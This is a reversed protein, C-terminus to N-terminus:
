EGGHVPEKRLNEFLFSGSKGGVAFDIDGDRDIDALAVQMGGGARTSYDVIHRTWEVKPGVRAYEYWYVGLPERGGPDRGNHAMYRKGVVLDAQGDGNLDALAPAHAQSWSEDIMHTTWRGDAGQSLWFVGYDHGYSSLIDNRGDGNVDVVYMYSLHKEFKFDAHWQWDRSRPDVPAEFWGQATLIDNRGDGNVDGAGMGFLISQTHVVHKLFAGEKVEYWALPADAKGFQPLVEFANGDNDLDVLIAAEIPAINEILHEKWPGNAKGPNRWWTLRQSFWSCSVVDPYGDGDVDLPLDCFNDVYYNVYQLERFRHRIWRPGEFWNEGSIIDLRGDRNVDAFAATESAGLDLLRKAFPVEEPRSYSSVVVVICLALIAVAICWRGSM